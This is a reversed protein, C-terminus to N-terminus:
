STDGSEAIDGSVQQYLDELVPLTSTPLMRQVELDQAVQLLRDMLQYAILDRQADPTAGSLQEGIKEFMAGLVQSRAVTRAKGMSELRTRQLKARWETIEIVFRSKWNNVRQDIVERRLPVIKNGVGGGHVDLGRRRLTRRVAERVLKGITVRALPDTLPETSGGGLAEQASRHTEILEAEDPNPAVRARDPDAIGSFLQDYSYFSIAQKLKHAAVTLPLKEWPHPARQDLPSRGSPDVEEAFVTEFVDRQNRYPWPQGLAIKRSGRNIRFLSSIPVRVEIGDRTIANVSSTRIQNRLDVVRHPSEMPRTLVVGPGAVRTVKSGTKLIVVNEPETLLFGPGAGFFANGEIRLQVKGEEVVWTPKPSSTFYGLLIALATRLPRDTGPAIPVVRAAWMILLSFLVLPGWLVSVLFVGFRLPSVSPNTFGAYVEVLVWLWVVVAMTLSATRSIRDGSSSFGYVGSSIFFVFFVGLPVLFSIVLIARLQLGLTWYWLVGPFFWVIPEWLWVFAIWPRVFPLMPARGPKPLRDRVYRTVFYTAVLLLVLLGVELVTM